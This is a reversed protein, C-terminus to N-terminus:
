INHQWDVRLAAECYCPAEEMWMETLTTFLWIVVCVCVQPFPLLGQIMHHVCYMQLRRSDSSRKVPAPTIRLFSLWLKLWCVIRQPFTTQDSHWTSVAHQLASAQPLGSAYAGSFVSNRVRTTRILPWPEPANRIRGTLIAIATLGRARLRGPEQLKSSSFAHVPRTRGATLKQMGHGLVGVSQQLSLATLVVAMRAPGQQLWEQLQVGLVLGAGSVLGPM